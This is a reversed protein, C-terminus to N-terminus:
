LIRLHAIELGKEQPILHQLGRISRQSEMKCMTFCKRKRIQLKCKLATNLRKKSAITFIDM